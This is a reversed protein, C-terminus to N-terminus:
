SRSDESGRTENGSVRLKERLDNATYHLYVSTTELLKHRLLRNVTYLDVGAKLLNTARSHRAFEHYHIDYPGAEDIVKNFMETFRVTNWKNGYKTEFLYKKPKEKNLYEKLNICLDKSIPISQVYGKKLARVTITCETYNFDEVKLDCLESVRLACEYGTQLMLGYKVNIKYATDIIKAIDEEPLIRYERQVDGLRVQKWDIDAKGLITFFTKLAHYHLKVTNINYAKGLEVLYDLIDKTTVGEYDRDGMWEQFKSVAVRYNRITLESDKYLHRLRDEVRIWAQSLKTV